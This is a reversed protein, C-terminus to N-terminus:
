FIYAPFLVKLPRLITMDAAVFVFCVPFSKRKQCSILLDNASIFLLSGMRMAPAVAKKVVNARGGMKM